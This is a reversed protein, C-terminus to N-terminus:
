HLKLLRTARVGKDEVRACVLDEGVLEWREPSNLSLGLAECRTRYGLSSIRESLAHWSVVFRAEGDDEENEAAVVM